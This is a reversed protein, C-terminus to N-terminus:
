MVTNSQNAQFYAYALEEPQIGAKYSISFSNEEAKKM